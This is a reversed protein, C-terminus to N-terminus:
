FKSFKLHCTVPVVCKAQGTPWDSDYTTFTFESQVVIKKHVTLLLDLWSASSM